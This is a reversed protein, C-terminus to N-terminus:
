NQKTLINFIASLVNLSITLFLNKYRIKNKAKTKITNEIENPFSVIQSSLLTITSKQNDIISIKQNTHTNNTPEWSKNLSISHIVIKKIKDLGIFLYSNMRQFNKQNEAVIKNIIANCDNSNKATNNILHILIVEKITKEKNNVKKLNSIRRDRTKKKEVNIDFMRVISTVSIIYKKLWLKEIIISM